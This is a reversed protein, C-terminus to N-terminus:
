KRSHDVKTAKMLSFSESIVLYLQCKYRCRSLIRSLSNISYISDSSAMFRKLFAEQALIDIYYRRYYHNWNQTGIVSM